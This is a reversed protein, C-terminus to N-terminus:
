DTWLGDYGNVVRIRGQLPVDCDEGAPLMALSFLVQSNQQRVQWRSVLLTLMELGVLADASCVLAFASLWGLWFGARWGVSTANEPTQALRDDEKLIAQVEALTHTHEVFLMDTGDDNWEYMESFYADFGAECAARFDPADTISADFKSELLLTSAYPLEFFQAPSVTMFTKYV